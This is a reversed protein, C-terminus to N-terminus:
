KNKGYIEKAAKEGEDTLFIHWQHLTSKDEFHIHRRLKLQYIYKKIMGQSIGTKKYFEQTSIM